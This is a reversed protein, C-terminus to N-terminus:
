RLERLVAGSAIAAVALLLVLAFYVVWTGGGARGLGMHRIVAPTLSAWSPGGPRLYDIWMRGPLAKGGSHTAIAASTPSGQVLITEDRLRFSACVTVDRVTRPLPKVPVTVSGGIWNSDREGATIGRGAHFVLLRVRPGAAADIWIRIASSSRPLVEHAQCYTAGHTTSALVTGVSNASKNAGALSMPSHLLTLGVAISMLTLGAALAIKVSRM